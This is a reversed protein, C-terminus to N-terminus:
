GMVQRMDEGLALLRDAPLVALRPLVEAEEAAFHARALDIVQRVREPDIEPNLADFDSLAEIVDNERRAEAAVAEDGRVEPYIVHREAAEFELAERVIGGWRLRVTELDGAALEDLVEGFLSDLKRHEHQVLQVVDGAADSGRGVSQQVGTDASGGYAPGAGPDAGALVEVGHPSGAADGAVEGALPTVKRRDDNESM